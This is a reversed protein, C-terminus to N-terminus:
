QRGAKRLAAMGNCYACPRSAPQDPSGDSCGCDDGLTYAELALALADRQEQLHHERKAASKATEAHAAKEVLLLTQLREIAGTLTQEVAGSM